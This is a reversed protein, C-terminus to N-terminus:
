RTNRPGAGIVCALLVVPPGVPGLLVECLLLPWFSYGRDSGYGAISIIIVLYLAAAALFIWGLVTGNLAAETM